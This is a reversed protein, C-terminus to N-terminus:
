RMLISIMRSIGTKRVVGHRIWEPFDFMQYRSQYLSLGDVAQMGCERLNEPVLNHNPCDHATAGFSVHNWGRENTIRHFKRVDQETAGDRDCFKVNVGVGEEMGGMMRAVRRCWKDGAELETTEHLFHIEVDGFLVGVPYKPVDAFYKSRKSFALHGTAIQTFNELLKLYCKPYIFLGVFPTNYPRGLLPYVQFGWCNNSIMIFQHDKLRRFEYEVAARGGIKSWKMIILQLTPRM